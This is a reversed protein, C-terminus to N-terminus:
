RRDEIIIESLPKGKVKIRKIHRFKRKKAPLNVYGQKALIALREEISANEEPIDPLSHLIAMPTGRDTVIIKDGDKTLGLYYSLKDKLEKVGVFYM